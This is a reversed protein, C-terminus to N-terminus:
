ASSAVIKGRAPPSYMKMRCAYPRRQPKRYPHVRKKTAVAPASAASAVPRAIKRLASEPPAMSATRMVTGPSPETLPMASTAIAATHITVSTLQASM